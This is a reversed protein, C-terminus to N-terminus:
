NIKKKKREPLNVSPFDGRALIIRLMKSYKGLVAAFDPLGFLVETEKGYFM